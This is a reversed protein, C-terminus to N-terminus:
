LGLCGRIFRWIDLWYKYVEERRLRWCCIFFFVFLCLFLFEIVRKCLSLLIFMRIFFSYLIIFLFIFLFFRKVLVWFELCSLKKIFFSVYVDWFRLLFKVGSLFYMLLSKLSSMVLWIVSRLRKFLVFFFYFCLVWLLVMFIICINLLLLGLVFVVFLGYSKMGYSWVFRWVVVGIVIKMCLFVIFIDDFRDWLM